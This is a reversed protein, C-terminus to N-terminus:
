TVRRRAKPCWSGSSRTLSIVLNMVGVFLFAPVRYKPDLRALDVLFLFSITVLAFSTPLEFSRASIPIRLAVHSGSFVNNDAYVAARSRRFRDRPFPVTRDRPDTIFSVIRM